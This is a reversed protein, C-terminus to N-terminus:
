NLKYPTITGTWSAGTIATPVRTTKHPITLTTGNTIRASVNTADVVLAITSNNSSDNTGGTIAIIDGATYGADGTGCTIIFAFFGPRSGLGHAQTTTTNVALSALSLPTGATLTGVAVAPNLLEYRTNALNYKFLSVALSGPIDGSALASGGKKVITRATGGDVALTPTTTTNAAGMVLAFIPQDALVLDPTFDATIADATGGAVVFPLSSNIATGNRKRITLRFQTTTEALIIVRDGATATFTEGSAYGDILMAASATFGSAGACLLSRCTGVQSAPAATIATAVATGTYDLTGTGVGAAFPAITAASAITSKYVPSEYWYTRYNTESLITRIRQLEGALDTPLSESGSEGPDVMSQM